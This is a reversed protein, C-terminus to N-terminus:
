VSCRRVKTLRSLKPLLSSVAVEATGEDGGGVRGRLQQGEGGQQQGRQALQELAAGDAMAVRLLQLQLYLELFGECGLFSAAAAAIHLREAYLIVFTPVWQKRSSTCAEASSGVDSSESRAWIELLKLGETSVSCPCAPVALTRDEASGGGAAPPEKPEVAADEPVGFAALDILQRGIECRHALQFSIYVTREGEDAPLTESSSANRGLFGLLWEALRSFM